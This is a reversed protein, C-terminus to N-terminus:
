RQELRPKVKSDASKNSKKKKRRPGFLFRYCERAFRFPLLLLAGLAELPVMILASVRDLAYGILGPRQNSRSAAAALSLADKLRLELDQLRAETVMSQTTARKEYRRVARNLADLQPQLSQRVNKEISPDRQENKDRETSSLAAGSRLEVEEIRKTLVDIQEQRTDSEAAPFSTVVRQLRLTRAEVLNSLHLFPRVEAALVFLTLNSNSVVGGSPRSLYPRITHLLYAVALPSIFCALLAMREDSRLSRAAADRRAQERESRAHGRQEPADVPQTAPAPEDREDGSSEEYIAFDDPDQAAMNIAQAAIYWQWPWKVSWYLFLCGLGLMLVDTMVSSGNEFFIGAFAPLAVFLLSASHWQGPEDAEDV